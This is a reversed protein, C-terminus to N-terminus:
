AKTGDTATLTDFLKRMHRPHRPPVRFQGDVVYRYCGGMKLANRFPMRGAGRKKTRALYVARVFMLWGYLCQKM